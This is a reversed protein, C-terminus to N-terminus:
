WSNDIDEDNVGAEDVFLSNRKCQTEGSYCFCFWFDMKIYQHLCLFVQSERQGGPTRLHSVDCPHFWRLCGQSWCSSGGCSTADAHSCWRQLLWWCGRCRGPCLLSFFVFVPPRGRSIIRGPGLCKHPAATKLGWWWGGSESKLSDFTWFSIHSLPRHFLRM